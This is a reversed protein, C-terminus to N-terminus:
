ERNTGKNISDLLIESSIYITTNTKDIKFDKPQVVVPGAVAAPAIFLGAASILNLLIKNM